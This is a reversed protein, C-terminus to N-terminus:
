IITIQPHRDFIGRLVWRFALSDDVVLVTIGKGTEPNQNKQIM